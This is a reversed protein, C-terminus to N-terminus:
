FNLLGCLLIMNLIVKSDVDVPCEGKDLWWTNKLKHLYGSELLDLVALGIENRRM